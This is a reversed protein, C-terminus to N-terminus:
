RGSARAAVRQLFSALSADLGAAYPNGVPSRGTLTAFVVCATLYSGAVGPHRGDPRWLRLGPREALALAWAEGARVLEVGAGESLLAFGDALRRTMAVFSDGPLNDQDGLEYGATQLLWPTTGARRFWAALRRAAPLSVTTVEPLAPLQSQEQLVAAAFGDDVAARVDADESARHLTSAGATWSWADVLPGGEDARSLEVVMSPLDNSATISNGVFLVRMRERGGGLRTAAPAQRVEVRPPWVDETEAGGRGATAGVLVFLLVLAAAPL